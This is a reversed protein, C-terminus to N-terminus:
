PESIHCFSGEAAAQPCSHACGWEHVFAWTVEIYVSGEKGQLDPRRLTRAPVAPALAWKSCLARWKRTREDQSKDEPVPLNLHFPGIFSCPPLAAPRCPTAALGALRTICVM